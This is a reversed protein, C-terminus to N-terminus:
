FFPVCLQRRRTYFYLLRLFPIDTKVKVLSLINQRLHVHKGLKNHNHNFNVTFIYCSPYFIAECCNGGLLTAVLVKEIFCDVLRVSHSKTIRKTRLLTGPTKKPM